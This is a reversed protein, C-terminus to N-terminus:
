PNDLILSLLENGRETINYRSTSTVNGKSGVLGLTNLNRVLFFVYGNESYEDLPILIDHGLIKQIEYKSVSKTNKLANLPAKSKRELEQYKNIAQKIDIMIKIEKVSIQGFIIYLHELEDDFKFKGDIDKDTQKTLIKKLFELRSKNAKTADALVQQTFTLCDSSTIYNSSTIKKRLKENEYYIEIVFKELKKNNHARMLNGFSEPVIGLPSRNILSKIFESCTSIISLKPPKKYRDLSTKEGM